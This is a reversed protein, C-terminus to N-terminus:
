IYCGLRTGLNWAPPSFNSASISAAELFSAPPSWTDGSFTVFSESEIFCNKVRFTVIHDVRFTFIKLGLHIIFLLINVMM